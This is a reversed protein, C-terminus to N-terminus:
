AEHIWWDQGGGLLVLESSGHRVPCDVPVPFAWDEEADFQVFKLYNQLSPRTGRNLVLYFGRSGDARESFKEVSRRSRWFTLQGLNEADFVFRGGCEAVLDIGQIALVRRLLLSYPLGTCELIV